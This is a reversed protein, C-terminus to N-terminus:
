GLGTVRQGYRCSREQFAEREGEMIKIVADIIEPRDINGTTEVRASRSTPADLV